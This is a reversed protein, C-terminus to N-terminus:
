KATFGADVPLAVGTIYRAHDSVLFVIADSIDRPQLMEVPLMNSLSAGADPFAHLFAEMASNNVMMTDVVTPHVTNVRISYPALEMAFTRMLGVVGWKSAGYGENGVVKPAGLGKLGATSSTLVIAGGAGREIM